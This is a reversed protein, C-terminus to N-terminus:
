KPPRVALRLRNTAGRREKTLIGRSELRDVIRSVKANSMGTMTVLEKQLITGGARLITEYVGREDESLVQLIIREEEVNERGLRETLEGLQRKLAVLEQTQATVEIELRETREDLKGIDENLDQRCAAMKARVHEYAEVLRVELRAVSGNVDEIEGPGWPQLRDIGSHSIKLRCTSADSFPAKAMFMEVCGEGVLAHVVESVQEPSLGRDRKLIASTLVAEDVSLPFFDMLCRLVQERVYIEVM